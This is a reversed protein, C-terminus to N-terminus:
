EELVVKLWKAVESDEGRQLYDSLAYRLAAEV